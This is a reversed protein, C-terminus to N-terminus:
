PAAVVRDRVASRWAGLTGEDVLRGAKRLERWVATLLQPMGLSVGERGSMLVATFMANRIDGGALPLRSALFDIDIDPGRAAPLHRQWIARREAVGPM